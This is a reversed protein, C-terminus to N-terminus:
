RQVSDVAGSEGVWFRSESGIGGGFVLVVYCGATLEQAPQHVTWGRPVAGYEIFPREPGTGHKGREVDWVTRRTTDTTGRCTEVLVKSLHRNPKLSDPFVYTHFSLHQATSGPEPHVETGPDGFVCGLLACATLAFAGFVLGVARRRMMPPTSRM